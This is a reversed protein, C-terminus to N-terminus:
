FFRPVADRYREFAAGYRAQLWREELFIAVLYLPGWVALTALILPAPALLAWGGLGFWTACYVPNRSYGFIGGTRLGEQAGFANGWGLSATAAFAVAFGTAFLVLALWSQWISISVGDRWLRLATAGVLGYFMIRFLVRFLRNQWSATEPPPWFAFAPRLLAMGALLLLVVAAMLAALALLRDPDTM